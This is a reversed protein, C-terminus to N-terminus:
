LLTRAVRPAQRLKSQPQDIMRHMGECIELLRRDSIRFRAALEQRTQSGTMWESHLRRLEGETLERRSTIM